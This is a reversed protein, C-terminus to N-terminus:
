IYWDCLFTSIYRKLVVQTVDFIMFRSKRKTDLGLRTKEDIKSFFRTDNFIEWIRGAVSAIPLYAFTVASCRVADTNWLRLFYPWMYTSICYSDSAISRLSVDHACANRRYVPKRNTRSDQEFTTAPEARETYFFFFFNYYYCFVRHDLRNSQRKCQLVNSGLCYVQVYRGDSDTKIPGNVGCPDRRINLAMCVCHLPKFVVIKKREMERERERECL